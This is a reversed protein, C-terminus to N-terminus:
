SSEVQDIMLNLSQFDRLIIFITDHHSAQIGKELLLGRDHAMNKSFIYELWMIKKQALPGKLGGKHELLLLM